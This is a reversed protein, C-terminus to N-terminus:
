LGFALQSGLSYRESHIRPVYHCQGGRAEDLCSTFPKNRPPRSFAFSCSTGGSDRRRFRRADWFLEAAAPEHTGRGAVHSATGRRPGSAGRRPRGTCVIQRLLECRFHRHSSVSFYRDSRCETIHRIGDPLDGTEAGSRCFPTRSHSRTLTQLEPLEASHPNHHWIRSHVPMVFPLGKSISPWPPQGLRLGGFCGGSSQVVFLFARLHSLDRFFVLGLM